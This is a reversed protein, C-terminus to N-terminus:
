VSAILPQWVAGPVSFDRRPNGNVSFSGAAIM